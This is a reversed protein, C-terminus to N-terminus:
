SLETSLWTENGNGDIHIEVCTTRKLAEVRASTEMEDVIAEPWESKDRYINEKYEVIRGYSKNAWSIITDKDSWSSLATKYESPIEDYSAFTTIVAPADSDILSTKTLVGTMVVWRNAVVDVNFSANAIHDTVRGHV